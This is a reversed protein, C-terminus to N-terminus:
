GKLAGARVVAEMRNHAGLIRYIASLHVKVTGVGMDLNRAIDKTSRGEALLRLVDMQRATFRPNAASAPGGAAQISSASVPRPLESEAARHISALAAPAYVGGSLVTKIATLIQESASSKTVYGHVGAALCELITSKDDLGTLVVVKLEPLAERIARLSEQGQMGPMRLDIILLDPMDASITAVTDDFTGSESFTWSPDHNKLLETLGQRLLGHDDAIHVHM